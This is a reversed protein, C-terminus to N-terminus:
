PCRRVQGMGMTTKTGVGTFFALDALRNIHRAMPLNAADLIRYQATGVFGVQRTNRGFDAMVTHLQHRAVAICEAAFTRTQPQTTQGTLTDWYGALEGFVFYPDPLIHHLRHRRQPNRITFATPTEFQFDLKHPLADAEASDWREWLDGLAAVGAWDHSHPTSLIETVVFRLPNLTITAPRFHSLFYSIFTQFLQQDHLTVRLYGEDGTRIPLTGNHSRGFGHLPSITFPKRGGYDHLSQALSPDVADLLAHFAAHALRGQTARITGSNAATLKIILAYLDPQTM